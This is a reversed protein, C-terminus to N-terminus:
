NTRRFLQALALHPETQQGKDLGCGQISGSLFLRTICWPQMETALGAFKACYTRSRELVYQIPVKGRRQLASASLSPCGSSPICTFSRPSHGIANRVPSVCPAEASRRFRRGEVGCCLYNQVGAWPIGEIKRPSGRLFDSSVPLPLKASPGEQGDM